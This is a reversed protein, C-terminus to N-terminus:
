RRGDEEEALSVAHHPLRQFGNETTGARITSNKTALLVAGSPVGRYFIGRPVFSGIYMVLEVLDRWVSSQRCGLLWWCKEM